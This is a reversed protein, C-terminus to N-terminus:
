TSSVIKEFIEVRKKMIEDFRPTNMFLGSVLFLVIQEVDLKSVENPITDLKNYFSEALKYLAYAPTSQSKSALEKAEKMVDDLFDDMIKDM